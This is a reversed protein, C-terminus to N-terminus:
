ENQHDSANKIRSSIAGSRFLSYVSLKLYEKGKIMKHRSTKWFFIELHM